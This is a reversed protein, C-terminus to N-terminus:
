KTDKQLPAGRALLAAIDDANTVVQGEYWQVLDGSDSYFGYLSALVVSEPQDTPKQKAM